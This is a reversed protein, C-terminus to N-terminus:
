WQCKLAELTIQNNKLYCDSLIRFFQKQADAQSTAQGNGCSNLIRTMPNIMYGIEESFVQFM